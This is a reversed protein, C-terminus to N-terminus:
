ALSRKHVLHIQYSELHWCDLTVQKGFVDM